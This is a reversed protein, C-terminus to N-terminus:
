KLIWLLLLGSLLGVMFGFFALEIGRDRRGQEYGDERGDLFGDAWTKPDSQASVVRLSASM